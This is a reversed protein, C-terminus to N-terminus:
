EVGEKFLTLLTKEFDRLDGNNNVLIAKNKIQLFGRESPHLDKLSNMEAKKNNIYWVEFDEKFNDSFLQYEDLFRLDTIFYTGESDKLQILLNYAHINDRVGRLVETGVYQLVRRPTDLTIGVHPRVHKDYIINSTEGFAEIVEELVSASLYIPDKLYAEKARRDTIQFETLGLVEKCVQKLKGAFSVKKILPFHVKLLDFATDKGAGKIGCIGIIKM